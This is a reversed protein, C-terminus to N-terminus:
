QGWPKVAEFEPFMKLLKVSMQHYVMKWESESDGFITGDHYTTEYGEFNYARYNAIEVILKNFEKKNMMLIEDKNAYDFAQYTLDSVIDEGTLIVPDPNVKMMIKGNTRMQPKMNIGHQRSM